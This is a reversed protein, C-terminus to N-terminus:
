ASKEPVIVWGDKLMQEAKKFKVQQTEAGRKITVMDNRGFKPAEPPPRPAVKPLKAEPQGTVATTAAPPAPPAPAPQTRTATGTTTAPQMPDTPGTAQARKMLQLLSQFSQLNTASTFLGGCVDERVRGMMQEFYTFAESKYDNLPDRQGYSRLNISKRLDEIETLHDQWNRDIARIVVYREIALMSEPTEFECRQAYATKLNEMIWAVLPEANKGKADAAKLSIPFRANVWALYGALPEAEPQRGDPALADARLKLEEEVVEFVTERPSEGRIADNRLGYVVERQRNLVDDYQLLRKRISYDQAEVKKQAQSISYNLLGHELPEGEQMSKDLMTSLPGANAFLRMLSDEMSIYFRSLGPDGQRACRGRLQRDVRRSNHRETGLVYLGGTEPVGESLKIDTGRGAMNTAITVAGRWGARAVIEAEQQHYKANLVSHVINLRKLMKSLVESDDVSTTGVLVPQGREHAQKIDEVVANYKERRTKFVIDDLDKRICTKHTPIQMVTLRYIDNFEAAETEATGTMGALKEYLRFYNQITITAYTKTEKEIVVGEKAEVAQHLGESWRRGPMLRGTNEDVIFVKGDLVVYEKDREYLTYAILLQALCHIEESATAFRKEEAQKLQHKQEPTLDSRRDTTIFFTPLDPLVFAEPNEPRLARRGNETLDSTRQREDVTFLLEEKLHYRQDRAFDGSMELDYKDLLKRVAGNEMLKHLQRHKPMGMKVQLLKRIAEDSAGAGPKELEEKAEIALRNCLRLQQNYLHEVGPKLALYPGESDETSPGTIILPTRAEDVLISDVEDVICYFHGNQVQDSVRTAMGNDRLYDFGFESATGYTIDCQYAARRVDPPQQQQICGVTLGLFKYLYGMWESDRLALYDNVTVCHCNCGSLANLYLPLTAVLTKGEGTAMEAIKREHLAMGGILQVDYHVMNWTLPQGCIMLEQGSLRRAANKVAAFAEPLLQELTEGKKFRERFEVTKGRLHEDTYSKYEEDFHNVRVVIPLCNRVFQKYHRGSFYSLIKNIM